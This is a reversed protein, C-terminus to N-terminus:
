FGSGTRLCATGRPSGYSIFIEISFAYLGAGGAALNAASRGPKSGGLGQFTSFPAITRGHSLLSPRRLQALLKYIIIAFQALIPTLQLLLKM